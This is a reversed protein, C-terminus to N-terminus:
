GSISKKNPICQHLIRKYGIPCNNRTIIIIRNDLSFEQNNNKDDVEYEDDIFVISGDEEVEDTWVLVCKILLICIIVEYFVKM